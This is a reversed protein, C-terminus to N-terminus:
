IEVVRNILGSWLFALILILGVFLAWHFLDMDESFPMGAWGLMNSLVGNQGNM